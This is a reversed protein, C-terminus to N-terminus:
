ITPAHKGFFQCIQECYYRSISPANHFDKDCITGEFASHKGPKIEKRLPKSVSIVAGFTVCVHGRGM